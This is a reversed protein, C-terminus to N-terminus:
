KNSQKKKPNRSNQLNSQLYFDKGKKVIKNMCHQTVHLQQSQSAHFQMSQFKTLSFKLNIAGSLIHSEYSLKVIDKSVTGDVISDYIKIKILMFYDRFIKFAHLISSVDVKFEIRVM